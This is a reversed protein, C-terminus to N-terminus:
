ERLKKLRRKDYGTQLKTLRERLGEPLLQEGDIALLICRAEEGTLINMTM